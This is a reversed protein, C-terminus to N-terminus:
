KKSIFFNLVEYVPSGIKIVQDPNIGENVLYERSIDSYPMNIDSIHDIIRRNIEEPVREDYSRNGAEIHFIPIKYKKAIIASLCSNTDGLILFASPKEKIIVLKVLYKEM